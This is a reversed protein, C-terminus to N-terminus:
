FGLRVPLGLAAQAPQFTIQLQELLRDVVQGVRDARGAHCARLSNGAPAGRTDLGAPRM